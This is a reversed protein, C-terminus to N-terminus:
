SQQADFAAIILLKVEGATLTNDSIIGWNVELEQPLKDFLPMLEALSGVELMTNEGIFITFMLSNIAGRNDCQMETIANDFLRSFLQIDGCCFRADIAEGTHQTLFEDFDAAEFDCISNESRPKIEREILQQIRELTM